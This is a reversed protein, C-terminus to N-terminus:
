SLNKVAIDRYSDLMSDQEPTRAYVLDELTLGADAVRKAIEFKDKEEELLRTAGGQEVIQYQGELTLWAFYLEAMAPDNVAPDVLCISQQTIPLFDTTLVYDLPAGSEKLGDVTSSAAIGIDGEGQLLAQTVGASGGSTITPNNAKLAKTYEDLKAESWGQALPFVYLALANNDLVLRGKWKPDTLDEWTMNAVEDAKVRDTSYVPLWPIQGELLCYDGMLDGGPNKLELVNKRLTAALPWESEIAKWNPKRMLGAQFTAALNTSAGNVMDVVAKGSKAGAIVKNPIDRSAHGPENQLNVPFGFRKEFLEELLPITDTQSELAYRVNHDSKRAAEVLAQFEPSGKGSASAGKPTAEVDTQESGGCAPLLLAL